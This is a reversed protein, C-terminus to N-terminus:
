SVGQWAHKGMAMLVTMTGQSSNMEFSKKVQVEIFGNTQLAHLIRNESLGMESSDDKSLWDWQVFMGGRQM